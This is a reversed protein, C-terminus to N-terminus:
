KGGESKHISGTVAAIIDLGERVQTETVESEGRERRKLNVKETVYRFFEDDTM